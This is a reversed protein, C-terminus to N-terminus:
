CLVGSNCIVEVNELIKSSIHCVQTELPEQKIVYIKLKLYDSRFVTLIVLCFNFPSYLLHFLTNIEKRTFFFPFVFSSRNQHFYM